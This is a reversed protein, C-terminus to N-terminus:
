ELHFATQKAHIIMYQIHQIGYEKTDVKIGVLCEFMCMFMSVQLSRTQFFSTLFWSKGRATENMFLKDGYKAKEEQMSRFLLSLMQIPLAESLM